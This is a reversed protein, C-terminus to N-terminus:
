RPTSLPTASLDRDLSDESCPHNWLRIFSEMTKSTVKVHFPRPRQGMYPSCFYHNDGFVALRKGSQTIQTYVTEAIVSIRSDFAALLKVVFFRGQVNIETGWYKWIARKRIKQQDAHRPVIVKAKRLEPELTLLLSTVVHSIILWWRRVGSGGYTEWGWHGSLLRWPSAASVPGPGPSVAVAAARGGSCM